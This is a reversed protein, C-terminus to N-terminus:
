CDGCVDSSSSGTIPRFASSRCQHHLAPALPAALRTPPAEGTCKKLNGARKGHMGLKCNFNEEWFEAFWVNRRNNSLSRSRFYRDFAPSLFFWATLCSGSPDPDRGAKGGGWGWLLMSPLGLPWAQRSGDRRLEEVTPSAIGHQVQVGGTPEQPVPCAAGTMPIGGGGSACSGRFVLVRKCSSTLM